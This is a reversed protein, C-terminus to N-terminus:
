IASPQREQDRFLNRPERVGMLTIMQFAIMLIAIAIALVFYASKM